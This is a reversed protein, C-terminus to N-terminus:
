RQIMGVMMDHTDCPTHLAAFCACHAVGPVCPGDGERDSAGLLTGQSLGDDHCRFNTRERVRCSWNTM